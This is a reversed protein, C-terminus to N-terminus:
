GHRQQGEKSHRRFDAQFQEAWEAALTPELGLAVAHAHIAEPRTLDSPNAKLRKALRGRFDLYSRPADGVTTSQIRHDLSQGRLAAGGALAASDTGYGAELAKRIDLGGPGWSKVFAGFAVTSVEAVSLNVPTRSLGINTWRVRDIVQVPRGDRVVTSKPGAKGGVSPYWRVPPTTRTISDWFYNAKEAAKGTGQYIHAKVFTKKGNVKVDVPKGIEFAYHSVGTAAEVRPGVQTLHDLDLNGYRLYYDASAALAKALVVEGEHDVSEDSAELFLIRQGGEEFPRAKLLDPVSLFDAFQEDFM